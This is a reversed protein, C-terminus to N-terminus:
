ASTHMCGLREHRDNMCLPEAASRNSRIACGGTERWVIAINSAGRLDGNHSSSFALVLANIISLKATSYLEDLISRFCGQQARVGLTTIPVKATLVRVTRPLIRQFLAFIKCLIASRLHSVVNWLVTLNCSLLFLFAGNLVGLQAALGKRTFYAETRSHLCRALQTRHVLDRTVPLGVAVLSTGPYMRISKGVVSWHFPSPLAHSFGLLRGLRNSVLLTFIRGYRPASYKGSM